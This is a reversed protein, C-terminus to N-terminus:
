INSIIHVWCLLHQVEEEIFVKHIANILAKDRDTVITTPMVDLDEYLKRLHWLVWAFSPTDEKDMFAFGINFTLNTCTMGIMELLHMNYRCM